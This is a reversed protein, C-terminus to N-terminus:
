LDQGQKDAMKQPDFSSRLSFNPLAMVFEVNKEDPVIEAEGNEAKKPFSFLVASVGKGDPARQIQVRSAAVKQKSRKAQLFAAGKLADEDAGAFPTMDPGTVLVEYDASPQAMLKEVEAQKMQGSLIASRYAAGRVARSSNWRVLFAAQPAQSEGSEGAGPQTGGGSPYGRSMGGQPQPRAAPREGAEQGESSGGKWSANVRVLKAWPSDTLVRRVEKEDWQQYPKEKWPDGGAWAVLAVLLVGMGSLIHKRM